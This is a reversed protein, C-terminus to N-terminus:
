PLRDREAFAAAPDAVPWEARGATLECLYGIPSEPDNNELAARAPCWPCTSLEPCTVCRFAKSRVRGRCEAALSQWAAAFRERRLDRWPRRLLLCPTLRGDAEIHFVHYGVHCRFLKGEALPNAVSGIAGAHRGDAPPRRASEARWKAVDAPPVRLDVPKRSGRLDPFLFPDFRFPVGLDSATATMAAMDDRNLTTLVTKLAVRVGRDLLLRVGRLCATVVGQRGTLARATADDAGYLSVDVLAPPHDALMDALRPTLLTANTLVTPLLGSGHAHRYIEGFDERVLPEGGTLLLELCGTEVVQDLLECWEATSLEGSVPLGSMYCHRCGLNCRRTLEVSGTLPIVRDSHCDVLDWFDASGIAVRRTRLM